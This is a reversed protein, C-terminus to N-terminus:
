EIWPEEHKCVDKDKCELMPADRLPCRVAKEMSKWPDMGSRFALELSSLINTCIILDSFFSDVLFVYDRDSYDYSHIYIEIGDDWTKLISNRWKHIEKLFDSPNKSREVADLVMKVRKNVFGEDCYRISENLMNLTNIRYQKFFTLGVEDFRNPWELGSIRKLEEVNNKNSLIRIILRWLEGIGFDTFCVVYHLLNIIPPFLDPKNRSIRIMKEWFQWADNHSQHEQEEIKISEVFNHFIEERMEEEIEWNRDLLYREPFLIFFEQFELAHVELLDIKDKEIKLPKFYIKERVGEVSKKLEIKNKCQTVLKRFGNMTIESLLYAEMISKHMLQHQHTVEHCITSGVQIISEPTGIVRVRYPDVPEVKIWPIIISIPHITLGEITNKKLLKMEIERRVPLMSTLGLLLESHEASFFRKLEERFAKLRAKFEDKSPERIIEFDRVFGYKDFLSPFM